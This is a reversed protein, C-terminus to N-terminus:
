GIVRPERPLSTLSRSDTEGIVVVDEIRVGYSGPRYLGPEITVVMRPELEVLNGTTLYPAEHMELGLGHGTRHLVEHQYGADRLVGLVEEDVSGANRGAVAVRRGVENARLVARYMELAQESPAGVFVTRTIDASYGQYRGGFDFLLADGYDIRTEGAVAHPNATNAGTAVIPTFAPPGARQAQLHKLLCDLVELETMGVRVEALTAELAAESRIVATQIADIESEEKVSRPRAITDGSHVLRLHPSVQEIAQAEFVRMSLEEIGIRANPLDLAAIAEKLANADGDADSWSFARAEAGASRFTGLELDPLVIAEHGDSRLFYLIRREMSLHNAGTFYRLNAGPVLVVADLGAERLEKALRGRRKLLSEPENM